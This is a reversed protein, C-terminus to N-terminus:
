QWAGLRYAARFKVTCGAVNRWNNITGDITIAQTTKTITTGVVPKVTFNFSFNYPQQSPNPITTVNGRILYGKGLGSGNMTNVDAKGSTRFYAYTSLGRYFNIGPNSPEGAIGTKARYTSPMYDKAVVFGGNACQATVSDIVAGGYWFPFNAATAGATSVFLVAFATITARFM